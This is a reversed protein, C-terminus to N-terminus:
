PENQLNEIVKEMKNCIEIYEHFAGEYNYSSSEILNIAKQSRENRGNLSNLAFYITNKWDSLNNLSIKHALNTLVVEDPVTDSCIVPLGSCQGEIPVIGLGEYFSPFLLVDFASYLKDQRHFM